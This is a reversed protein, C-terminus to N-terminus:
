GLILILIPFLSAEFFFYLTFWNSVLFFMVSLVSLIFVCLRFIKLEKMKYISSSLYCLGGVWLTMIVLSSRLGNVLLFENICEVRLRSFVLGRSVLVALGILWFGVLFSNGVFSVLLGRGVLGVFLGMSCFLGNVREVLSVFGANEFVAITISPM